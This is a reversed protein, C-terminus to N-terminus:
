PQRIDMEACTSRSRVIQQVEQIIYRSVFDVQIAVNDVEFSHFRSGHKRVGMPLNENSKQLERLRPGLNNVDRAIVIDLKTLEDTTVDEANRHNKLSGVFGVVPSSQEDCM